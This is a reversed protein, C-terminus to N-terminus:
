NNCDEYDLKYTPCNNKELLDRINKIACELLVEINKHEDDMKKNIDKEMDKRDSPHHYYNRVLHIISYHDFSGNKICGPKNIGKKFYKDVREIGKDVDVDIIGKDSNCNEFNYKKDSNKIPYEGIKGIYFDLLDITCVNYIEYILLSPVIYQEESIKIKQCKNESKQDSQRTELLHYLEIDKDKREVKNLLYSIFYPNHSSIYISCYDKVLFMLDVLENILEPNLYNDPEDFFLSLKLKYKKILKLCFKM